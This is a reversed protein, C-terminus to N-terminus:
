DQCVHQLCFSSALLGSAPPQSPLQSFFDGASPALSPKDLRFPVYRGFANFLSVIENRSLQFKPRRTSGQEFVAPDDFNGSFLIKLATGLGRTQFRSLSAATLRSLM